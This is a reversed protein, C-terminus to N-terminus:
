EQRNRPKIPVTGQLLKNPIIGWTEGGDESVEVHDPFKKVLAKPIATPKLFLVKCLQSDSPEM